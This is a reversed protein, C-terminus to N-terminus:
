EFAKRYFALSAELNAAMENVAGLLLSVDEDPGTYFWDITFRLTEGLQVDDGVMPPLAMARLQ